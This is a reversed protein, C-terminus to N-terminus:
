VKIDIIKRICFHGLVIGAVAGAILWRGDPDNAMSKLYGPSIVMLGLMLALPMLTLITGTIRGHASAAQVQGKVKFRERIVLALKTLIEALNGGTERQLLVSSVFFRTDILPVRDALNHLATEIPLGLNHENFVKRFEQGLPPPTEDSLMEISISFAHGARMARALFDLAEPFQQEFAHLRKTRARKVRVYPLMGILIAGGAASMEAQGLAAIKWGILAGPIAAILTQAILAQVSMGLASQQITTELKRIINFRSIFNLFASPTKEGEERLITTEVRSESRESGQLVEAVRKKQQASFYHQGARMTLLAIGFILAFMLVLLIQM